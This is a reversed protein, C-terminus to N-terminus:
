REITDFQKSPQQRQTVPKLDEPKIDNTISLDVEVTISKEFDRGKDILYDAAKSADRSAVFIANKDNELVNAWSQIYAKHNEDDFPVGTEMSTFASTIEAVLEEKAYEETGFKNLLPRNLRSEHGTSHGLEHLLTGYYGEVTKFSDRAPTMVVDTNPRYHAGENIGHKVDVGDAAMGKVINEAREHVDIDYSEREPIEPLNIGEAQEVNFVAHSRQILIDLQSEAQKWNFQKSAHEVKVEAKKIVQGTSSTITAATEQFKYPVQFQKGDALLTVDKRQHFPRKEWFEIPTSKEGKIINGGMAKAQNFTLWRNDTYGKEMGEMMLMLSNGGRYPKQTVANVPLGTNIANTEDWPKRWPIKGESLAAVLKDTFEQRIDRKEKEEAM